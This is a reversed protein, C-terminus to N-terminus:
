DFDAFASAQLMDRYAHNLYALMIVGIEVAVGSVWSSIAGAWWANPICRPPALCM